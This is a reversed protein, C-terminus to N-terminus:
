EVRCAAVLLRGLPRMVPCYNIAVRQICLQNMLNDVSVSWEDESYSQYSFEAIATSLSAGSINVDNSPVVKSILDLVLVDAPELASLIAILNRHAKKGNDVMTNAMLAAWREQLESRSEQCAAELLPTLINPSPSTLRDPGIASLKERAETSIKLINEEQIRGFHGQLKAIVQGGLTYATGAAGAMQVVAVFDKGFEQVLPILDLSM